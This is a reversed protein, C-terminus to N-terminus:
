GESTEARVSSNVVWSSVVAWKTQHIEIWCYREGFRCVERLLPTIVRLLTLCMESHAKSACCGTRSFNRRETELGAAMVQVALTRLIRKWAEGSRQSQDRAFVTRREERSLKGQVQSLYLAISSSGFPLALNSLM